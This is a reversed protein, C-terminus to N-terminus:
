QTSTAKRYAALFQICATAYERAAKTDGTANYRNFQSANPKNQMLYELSAQAADTPAIGRLAYDQDYKKTAEPNIHRSKILHSTDTFLENSDYFSLIDETKTDRPDEKHTLKVAIIDEATNILATTTQTATGKVSGLALILSPLIDADSHLSTYNSLVDNTDFNKEHNTILGSFLLETFQQESLSITPPLDLCDRERFHVTPDDSSYEILYDTAHSTQNIRVSGAIATADDGTTSELSLNEFTVVSSGFENPSLSHMLSTDICFASAGSGQDYRVTSEIKHSTIFDIFDHDHPLSAVQEMADSMGLFYNQEEM